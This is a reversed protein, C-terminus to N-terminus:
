DVGEIGVEEESGALVVGDTQPVEAKVGGYFEEPVGFEGTQGVGLRVVLVKQEDTGTLM